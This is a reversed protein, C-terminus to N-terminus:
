NGSFIDAEFLRRDLVQGRWLYVDVLWTKDEDTRASAGEAVVAAIRSDVGIAGIAEEAGMSLGVVVIRDTDVSPQRTLFDIAAAIDAEGHWGFDM